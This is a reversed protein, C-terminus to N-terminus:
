VVRNFKIHISNAKPNTNRMHNERERGKRKGVRRGGRERCVRQNEKRLELPVYCGNIRTDQHFTLSLCLCHCDFKAVDHVVESVTQM